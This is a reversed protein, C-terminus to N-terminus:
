QRMCTGERYLADVKFIASRPRAVSDRSAHLKISPAGADVHRGLYPIMSYLRGLVASAPSYSHFQVALHVGSRICLPITNAVFESSTGEIWEM